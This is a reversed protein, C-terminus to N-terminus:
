LICHTHGGGEERWDAVQPLRFDVVPTGHARVSSIKAVAGPVEDKVDIPM